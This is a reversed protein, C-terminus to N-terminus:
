LLTPVPTPVGNGMPQSAEESPRVRADDESGAGVWGAHTAIVLAAVAFVLTCSLAISRRM